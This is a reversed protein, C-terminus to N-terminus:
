SVSLVSTPSIGSMGVGRAAGAVCRNSSPSLEYKGATFRAWLAGFLADLGVGEGGACGSDEDKECGTRLGNVDSASEGVEMRDIGDREEVSEGEGDLSPDDDGEKM